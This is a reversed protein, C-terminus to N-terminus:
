DKEFFDYNNLFREPLPANVTVTKDMFPHPFSLRGAHLMLGNGDPTGYLSDGDIPTGIHAMHVRLQHTRGTVPTLMVFSYEGSDSVAMRKYVTKAYKGESDGCVCRFIVSEERRKINKEIIGKEPVTGRVVAFYTKEFEGKQMSESLKSAAAGNKACLVVGSTERDLRNVVRFLCKEGKKIFYHMLGNALTGEFHGHSPHTPMDYPKNLAIVDDDEYLIDLPIDNPVINESTNEDELDLKVVDGDNLIYRVTKHEGNVTIGLPKQKLRTIQASSLSLQQRLFDRLLGEQEKNVTFEM